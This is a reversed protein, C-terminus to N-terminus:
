QYLLDYLPLFNQFFSHPQKWVIRLSQSQYEPVTVMRIYLWYLVAQFSQQKEATKKRYIGYVTRLDRLQKKEPKAQGFTFGEAM